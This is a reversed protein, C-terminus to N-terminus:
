RAPSDTMFHAMLYVRDYSHNLVDLHVVAGFPLSARPATM